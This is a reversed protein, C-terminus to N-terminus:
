WQTEIFYTQVTNRIRVNYIVKSRRDGCTKRGHYIMDSGAVRKWVSMRIAVAENLDMLNFVPCRRCGTEEHM